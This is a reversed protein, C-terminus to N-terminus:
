ESGRTVLRPDASMGAVAEQASAVLPGMSGAFAELAARHAEPAAELQRALDRLVELVPLASSLMEAVLSSRSQGLLGAVEDILAALDAPVYGSVRVLDTAM